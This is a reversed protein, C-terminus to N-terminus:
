PYSQGLSVHVKGIFINKSEQEISEGDKELSELYASIAEQINAKAQEFTDGESICGPLAPAYVTYGGEKAEEFVVDYQLIRISRKKM